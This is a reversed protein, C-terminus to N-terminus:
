GRKGAAKPTAHAVAPRSSATPTGRESEGQPGPVDTTTRPEIRIEVGYQNAGARRQEGYAWSVRTERPGDDVGLWKAVADRVHKLAGVANDSDMARPGIRTLTVVHPIDDIQLYAGAAAGMPWRDLARAVIAHQSDVRQKRKRWHEHANAESVTRLGMITLTDGAALTMIVPPKAKARLRRVATRVALTQPQYRASM